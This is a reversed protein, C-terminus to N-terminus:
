SFNICQANESKKANQLIINQTTQFNKERINQENQSCSANLGCTPNAAVLISNINLDSVMFLTYLLSVLINNNQKQIM